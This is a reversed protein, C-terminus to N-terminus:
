SFYGLAGGSFNGPPNTPAAVGPNAGAISRWYLYTAEDIYQRQIKLYDGPKLDREFNMLEHTVHLGDNFRDNFIASFLLPGGNLSTLYRYYNAEGKPDNFKLTVYLEEKGLFTSSATGISDLTVVDPMTTRATYVTGDVTVELQYTGGIVGLFVRSYYEGPAVGENFFIARGSPDILRVMAGSVPDTTLK